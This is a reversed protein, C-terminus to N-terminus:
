FQGPSIVRLTPYGATDLVRNLRAGSLEEPYDVGALDAAAFLEFADVTPLSREAYNPGIRNRSWDTIYHQFCYYRTTGIMATLRIPMLPLVHPYFVSATNDPDFVRTQDNVVVNGTGGEIRNLKNRRGRRWELDRGYATVDVWEYVEDRPRSS